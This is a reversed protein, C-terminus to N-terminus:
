RRQKTKSEKASLERTLAIKEQAPAFDPRIGLARTFASDAEPLFGLLGLLTGYNYWYIHNEPQLDLARNLATDAEVFRRAQMLAVGLDAWADAYLPSLQVSRRFYLISSDLNRRAAWVHGLGYMAEARLHSEDLTAPKGEILTVDLEYAPQTSRATHTIIETYAREASDIRGLKSYIGALLIKGYRFDERCSHAGAELIRAAREL